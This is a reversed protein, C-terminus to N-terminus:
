IKVLVGVHPTATRYGETKNALMNVDNTPEIFIYSARVRVSQGVCLATYGLLCCAFFRPLPEAM